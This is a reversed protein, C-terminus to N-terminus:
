AGLMAEAKSANKEVGFGEKYIRYLRGGAAKNGQDKARLFWRRAITFDSRVGSGEEFITGIQFLDDADARGDTVKKLLDNLHIAEPTDKKEIGSASRAALDKMSLREDESDDSILDSDELPTERTIDGAIDAELRNLQSEVEAHPLLPVELLELYRGANPENQHAARMLWLNGQEADAPVINGQHFLIGMNCQAEANGHAAAYALWRFGLDPQPDTGRGTLYAMALANAADINGKKAAVLYYPIAAGSLGHKFDLDYGKQYILRGDM